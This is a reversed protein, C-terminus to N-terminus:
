SAGMAVCYVATVKQKTFAALAKDDIVVRSVPKEAEVATKVKANLACSRVANQRGESKCAISGLVLLVFYIYPLSKKYKIM